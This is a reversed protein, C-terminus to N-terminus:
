GEKIRFFSITAYTFYNFAANEGIYLGRLYQKYDPWFDYLGYEEIQKAMQRRQGNILSKHITEINM